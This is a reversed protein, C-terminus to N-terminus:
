IRAVIKTLDRVFLATERDPSIALLRRLDNIIELAERDAQERAAIREAHHIKESKDWGGQYFKRYTANWESGRHYHGTKEDNFGQNFVKTAIEANFAPATM